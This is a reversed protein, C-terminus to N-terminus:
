TVPNATASEGAVTIEIYGFWRNHGIEGFRVVYRGGERPKFSILSPASRNFMVRKFDSPTPATILLELPPVVGEPECAAYDVDINVASLARPKLSDVALQLRIRKEGIYVPSLEDIANPM